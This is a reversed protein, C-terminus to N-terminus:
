RLAEMGTAVTSAARGFGSILAQRGTAKLSAAQTRGEARSADASAQGGRLIEQVNEAGQRRTEEMVLLPSGALDVGSSLFAVKQRRALDESESQEVRAQKASIRENEVARAEAQQAALEAQNGAESNASMGGLISSVSSVASLAPLVYPIIAELGM